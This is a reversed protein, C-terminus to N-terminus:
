PRPPRFTQGSEIWGSMPLQSKGQEKLSKVGPLLRDFEALAQTAQTTEGLKWYNAALGEEATCTEEANVPDAVIAEKQALAEAAQGERSLELAYQERATDGPYSPLHPMFSAIAGLGITAAAFFLLARRLATRSKALKDPEPTDQSTDILGVENSRRVVAHNYLGRNEDVGHRAIAPGAPQIAICRGSM